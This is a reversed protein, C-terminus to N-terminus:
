ELDRGLECTYLWEVIDGDQLKYSGCGVSPFEGNVRYMWGSLDGNDFEYLSAIGKIYQMGHAPNDEYDLQIGNLRCVESLIDFVTAESNVILVNPAYISDKGVTSASISFSINIPIIKDHSAAETSSYIVRSPASEYEKKSSVDIFWVALLALVAIAIVSIIYYKSKKRVISFVTFILSALIIVCTIILRIIRASPINTVDAKKTFDFETGTQMTVCELAELSQDTAMKNTPSGAVHCFGDSTKYLMLGDVLNKGSESIFDENYIDIGLDYLAIIVQATTESCPQSYYNAYDGTELQAASLFELTNEVSNIIEDSSIISFDLTRNNSSSNISEKYAVSLAQLAMASVDPDSNSDRLAYGGDPLQKSLLINIIEEESPFFETIEGSNIAKLGNIYAMIGKKEAEKNVDYVEAHASIPVFFSIILSFILMVLSGIYIPISKAIKRRSIIEQFNM